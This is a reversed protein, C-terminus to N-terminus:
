RRIAKQAAIESVRERRDLLPDRETEQAVWADVDARRYRVRGGIRAGRPGRGASRWNRLTGATVGLEAALQATSLLTDSTSTSTV